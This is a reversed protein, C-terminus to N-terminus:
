QCAPGAQCQCAGFCCPASCLRGGRYSAASSKIITHQHCSDPVACRWGNDAVLKAAGATDDVAQRVVGPLGRIYADCHSLAQADSIVRRLDAKRTGPLAVLCHKIEAVTENV